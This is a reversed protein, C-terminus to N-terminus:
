QSKQFTNYDFTFEIDVDQPAGNPLHAFPSARRVADLAEKNARESKSQTIMHLGRVSGNRDVNFKVVIHDYRNQKPPYWERKIRSQMATMFPGFDVDDQVWDSDAAAPPPPVPPTTTPATQLIASGPHSLVSDALIQSIGWLGLSLMALFAAITLNRRAANRGPANVNGHIKEHQELEHSAALWDDEPAEPDALIKKLTEPSRWQSKSSETQNNAANVRTETQYETFKNESRSQVELKSGSNLSPEIEPVVAEAPLDTYENSQILSTNERLKIKTETVSKDGINTDTM